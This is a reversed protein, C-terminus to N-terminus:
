PQEKLYKKLAEVSTLEFMDDPEIRMGFREEIALILQMHGMSDWLEITEISDDDRLDSVHFVQAFLEKLALEAPDVNTGMTEM